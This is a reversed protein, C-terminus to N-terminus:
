INQFVHLLSLVPTSLFDILALTGAPVLLGNAPRRWTGENGGAAMKNLGKQCSAAVSVKACVCVGAVLVPHTTIESLVLKHLSPGLLRLIGGAADGPQMSCCRLLVQPPLKSHSFAAFLAAACELSPMSCKPWMCSHCNGASNKCVNSIGSTHPRTNVFHRVLSHCQFFASSNFFCFLLLPHPPVM